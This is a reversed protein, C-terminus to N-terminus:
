WQATEHAPPVVLRDAGVQAQGISRQPGDGDDQVHGPLEGFPQGLPASDGQPIGLPDHQRRESHLVDPSGVPFRFGLLHETRDVGLMRANSVQEPVGVGDVDAAGDFTHLHSGVVVEAQQPACRGLEPLLEFGEAPRPHDGELGVVGHMPSMDLEGQPDGFLGFGVEEEMRHHARGPGAVDIVVGPDAGILRDQVAIRAVAGLQGEKGQGHAHGPGAFRDPVGDNAPVVATGMEDDPLVM